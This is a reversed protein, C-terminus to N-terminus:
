LTKIARKFSNMDTIVRTSNDLSNWLVSAQYSISKKLFDSRPKTPLITHKRRLNYTSTYKKFLTQLTALSYGHYCKFVLHLLRQTRLDKLPKWKTYSLVEHTPTLGDLKHICKAARAHHINELENFLTM